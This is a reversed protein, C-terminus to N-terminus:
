KTAESDAEIITSAGNVANIARVYDSGDYFDEEYLNIANVDVLDGHGKPLPIGKVIAAMLTIRCIPNERKCISKYLEEPIKIVLEINEM